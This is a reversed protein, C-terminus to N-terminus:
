KRVLSKTNNCNIDIVSMAAKVVEEADGGTEILFAASDRKYITFFGM